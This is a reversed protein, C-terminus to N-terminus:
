GPLANGFEAFCNDFAKRRDAFEFHLATEDGANPMFIQKTLGSSHKCFGATGRNLRNRVLHKKEIEIASQLWDICNCACGCCVIDKM